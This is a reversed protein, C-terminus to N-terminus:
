NGPWAANPMRDSSWMSSSRALCKLATHGVVEDVTKGFPKAYATNAFLYTFNRDLLALMDTSSGVIAAQRRLEESEANPKRLEALEDILQAKTKNKDQTM